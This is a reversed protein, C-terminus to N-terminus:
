SNDADRKDKDKKTKTDYYKLASIVYVIGLVIHGQYFVVLLLFILLSRCLYKFYKNAKFNDDEKPVIGEKQEPAFVVIFFAVGFLWLASLGINNFGDNTSIVGMWTVLVLVIMSTSISIYKKNM